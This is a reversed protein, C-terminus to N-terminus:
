QLVLTFKMINIQENNYSSSDIPHKDFLLPVSLQVALCSKLLMEIHSSTFQKKFHFKWLNLECIGPMEIKSQCCSYIYM